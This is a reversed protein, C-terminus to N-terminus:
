RNGIKQMAQDFSESYVTEISQDLQSNEVAFELRGNICRIVSLEGDEFENGNQKQLFIRIEINKAEFPVNALFPQIKLEANVARVFENVVYVLLERGEDITLENNYTFSLGLMKIQDMAQAGTGIARLNREKGVKLAVKNRVDSILSLKDPPSENGINSNCGFLSVILLIVLSIRM